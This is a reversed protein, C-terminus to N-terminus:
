AEKYPPIDLLQRFAEIYGRQCGISCDWSVYTKNGITIKVPYYLGTKKISFVGKNYKNYRKIDKKTLDYLYENAEINDKFEICQKDTKM